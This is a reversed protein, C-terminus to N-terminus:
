RCTVTSNDVSATQVGRANTTMHVTQHVLLNNRPGQGIMRFNNVFSFILVAGPDSSTHTIQQTVGTAQYKDGSDAGTGVIGQPQFHLKETIGSQNVITHTLVHLNGTVQIFEGAGDNACPVFAVITVPFAFNQKSGAAQGHVGAPMAVIGVSVGAVVILTRLARSM